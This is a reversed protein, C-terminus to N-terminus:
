RGHSGGSRPKLVHGGPQPWPVPDPIRPACHEREARAGDRAGAKLDASGPTTVVEARTWLTPAPISYVLRHVGDAGRVASQLIEGAHSQPKAATRVAAMITITTAKV